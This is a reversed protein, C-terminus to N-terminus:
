RSLQVDDRLTPRRFAIPVDAVEAVSM